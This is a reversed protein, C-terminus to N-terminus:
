RAADFTAKVVEGQLLSLRRGEVRYGDTAAMAQLLRQELQLTEAGCAMRTSALAKLALQTGRQTYRGRIQNCGAYASLHQSRAQLVLQPPKGGEAPAVPMGELTQLQWRTDRLRVNETPASAAPAAMTPALAAVLAFCILRLFFSVHM